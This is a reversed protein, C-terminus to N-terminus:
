WSEGGHGRVAGLLDARRGDRALRALGLDLAGEREVVEGAGLLDDLDVSADAEVVVHTGRERALAVRGAAGRASGRKRGERGVGGGGVCISWASALCPLIDSWSLHLPSRSTSSWWVTSSQAMASPSANLSASPSRLPMRRYPVPKAGRSSTRGAEGRESWLDGARGSVLQGRGEEARTRLGERAGDEVDRRAGVEAAVQLELALLDAVQRGLHDRVHELREGLAGADREVDIDEPSLVVVVLADHGEEGERRYPVSEQFRASVCTARTRARLDSDANLASASAIRSATWVSPESSTGLVLPTRATQAM